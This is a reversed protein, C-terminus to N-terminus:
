ARLSRFWYFAVGGVLLVALLSGAVAGPYAAFTAERVLGFIIMTAVTPLVLSVQHSIIFHYAVLLLLGLLIGALLWAWIASVGASAAVVLGLVILIAIGLSKRNRFRGTFLTVSVVVLLIVTVESVYSLVPGLATELLPLYAGAASYSAWNPALTPSLAGLAAGFGAFASGLFVGYVPHLQASSLSYKENWYHILGIALAVTASVVLTGVLSGLGFILLQNKFPESTRFGYQLEPWSNIVSILRIFLFGLLFCFFTKV